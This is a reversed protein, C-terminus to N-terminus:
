SHSSYQFVATSLCWHAFVKMKFASWGGCKNTYCVCWCVSVRIGSSWQSNVCNKWVVQCACVGVSVKCCWCANVHENIKMTNQHPFLIGSMRAAAVNTCLGVIAQASVATESDCHRTLPYLACEYPPSLLLRPEKFLAWTFHCTVMCIKMLCAMSNCVCLHVAKWVCMTKLMCSVPYGCVRCFSYFRKCIWVYLYMNM